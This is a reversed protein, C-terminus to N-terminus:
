ESYVVYIEIREKSLSEAGDSSYFINAISGDSYSVIISASDEDPKKKDINVTFTNSKEWKSQIDKEIESHRYEIKM